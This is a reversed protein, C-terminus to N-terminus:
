WLLQVSTKIEPQAWSSFRRVNHWTVRVSALLHGYTCYTTAAAQKMQLRRQSSDASAPRWSTPDARPRPWPRTTTEDISKENGSLRIGRKEAAVPWSGTRPGSRPVSTSARALAAMRRAAGVFRSSVTRASRRSRASFNRCARWPRASSSTWTATWPCVIVVVNKMKNLNEIKTRHM